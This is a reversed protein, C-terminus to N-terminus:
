RIPRFTIFLKALVSDRQADTNFGVFKVKEYRSKYFQKEEKAKQTEQHAADITNFAIVLSDRTFKLDKRLVDREKKTTKIEAQVDRLEKDHDRGRDLQYLNLCVFFIVIGVLIKIFLSQSM